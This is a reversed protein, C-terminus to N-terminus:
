SGAVALVYEMTSFGSPFEKTLVKPNQYVKLTGDNLYLNWDNEQKKVIARNKLLGTKFSMLVDVHMSFEVLGERISRINTVFYYRDFRPIHAYNCRTVDDISCEIIVVPDIISTEAKLTGEVALLDTVEKSVANTESKNRQLTITFSM